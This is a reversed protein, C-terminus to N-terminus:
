NGAGAGDGGQLEAPIWWEHVNQFKGLTDIRTGKIRDNVGVIQDFFFLWTYPQDAVIGAAAQRWLPAALEETPQALAQEFLRTVAPNDYSTYNFVNDGSWQDSIDAALGV